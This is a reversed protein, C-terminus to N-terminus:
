RILHKNMNLKRIEAASLGELEPGQADGGAFRALDRENAFAGTARDKRKFGPTSGKHREGESADPGYAYEGGAERQERYYLQKTAM